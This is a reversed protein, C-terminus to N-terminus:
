KIVECQVETNKEPHNWRFYYDNRHLRKGIYDTGRSDLMEGLKILEKQLAKDSKISKKLDIPQFNCVKIFGNANMRFRDCGRCLKDSQNDLIGFVYGKDNKYYKSPGNGRYTYDREFHGYKEEIISLIEAHPVQDKESFWQAVPGYIGLELFRPIIGEKFCFDTMKTVDKDNFDRIVVSNIKIKLGKKKAKLITKIIDDVNYKTGTFSKFKDPDLSHLSINARNLGADLLDDLYKDLLSANTTIAIDLDPGAMERCKRIIDPLTKRTLPEGGTFHLTKLKYMDNINKFVKLFEEDTLADNIKENQNPHCFACDFNCIDSASVRLLYGRGSQTHNIKEKKM